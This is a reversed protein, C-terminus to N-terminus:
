PLSASHRESHNVLALTRTGEAICCASITVIKVEMEQTLDCFFAVFVVHLCIIFPYVGAVGNAGYAYDPSCTLKAVQGISM